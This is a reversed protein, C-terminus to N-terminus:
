WLSWHSTNLAQRLQISVSFDTPSNRTFIRATGDPKHVTFENGAHSDYTICHNKKMNTFAIINAIGNPQFWVTGYGPLDGILNTTTSGAQTLLQMYGKVRHINMLLKPNAFNNCTSQNDLLIWSISLGKNSTSFAMTRHPVTTGDSKLEFGQTAAHNLFIFNRSDDLTAIDDWNVSATILQSYGTNGGQTAKYTESKENTACCEPSKHHKDGCHRCIIEAGHTAFATENPPRKDTTAGPTKSKSVTAKNFRNSPRRDEKKDTQSFAM